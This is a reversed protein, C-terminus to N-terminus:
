LYGSVPFLYLYCIASLLYCLSYSASPAAAPSARAHTNTYTHTRVTVTVEESSACTCLDYESAVLAVSVLPSALLRSLLRSLRAALLLRPEKDRRARAAVRRSRAEAEAEVGGIEGACRWTWIMTWLVVDMDVDVHM